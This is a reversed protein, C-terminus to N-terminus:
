SVGEPVHRRSQVVHFRPTVYAFDTLSASAAPNLGTGHYDSYAASQNVFVAGTLNESLAVGGDLAARRAAALVEDDTSYVGATMAGHTRASSVLAALAARTDSTPVLLSVPGFQENAAAPDDVGAVAILAPTRLRAEAFEPHSLARGQLVVQGLGAAGDARTLVDDNVIAGLVGAARAPDSLLGEIATALDASVEAFTKHGADTDIGDAPIYINQTTTCMQGSYLSLTFALNQLMAEYADTSDIVVSNVGAKESFVVAQAAERELWDGFTSSGTYDILRVDPHTALAPALPEDRTDVALTVLDSSFGNEALVERAIQVTIALPLIASPSPKVIVPNGTALSAFLGPYSNWTPFTSCGIVLSVGRPAVTFRKHMRVPPRKGQPKEWLAEAPIAAMAHHAYAIAELAREQAHPGGAQFAMPFAQGTTHMVAHALEHSRANVRHLVELLVATRAQFGADRWSPLAASAAVITADVDPRPYTIGLDFGYPSREGGIWEGTTPGDLMFRNGLHREFAARGAAAADDGYGKPSESYASFWERSLIAALAGQLVEEHRELLDEAIATRAATTTM